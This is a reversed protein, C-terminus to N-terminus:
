SWIDEMTEEPLADPENKAFEVANVVEEKVASEVERAKDTTLIGENSLRAKLREIPCRKKWEDVEEKPRYVVPDGVYHGLWRYTKCELLSPGQGARARDVARAAVEYVSLVNNGDVSMGPMEYADARLSIDTIKQHERQPTSEAYLNNECVFVVPLDWVSALNLGEHFAGTNTAGDGFFSAVVQSTRRMKAALAVGNAIPIGSGVIGTAGVVGRSFDAIHMSGGKGKCYGSRKGFLEAMMRDLRAGKAIVHGHGRHTSTIYDDKRLAACVGVAVSEQGIYSHLFGPLEGRLFLDKAAEEFHRIQLMRRYMWVLKRHEVKM